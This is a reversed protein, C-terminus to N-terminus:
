PNIHREIEEIAPLHFGNDISLPVPRLKVNAISAFGNYNTYFPEFVIIEDDADCVSCMAFIIAESGGSTVIIEKEELLIGHQALYSKWGAIAAPLGNSPAYSVTQLNLKQIADFFAPPTPLDPQGINLRYIKTGQKKRAEALSALKRIPSAQMTQARHSVSVKGGVEEIIADMKETNM